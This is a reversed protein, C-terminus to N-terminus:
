TILKKLYGNVKSFTFYLPNVINIKVYKLDKITVYGICYILFHKYSKENIKINNLDFIKISIIADFFYYTHNKISIDKVKKSM